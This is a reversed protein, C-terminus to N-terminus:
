PKYIATGYTWGAGIAVMLLTRDISYMEAMAVPISASAINGYKHMITIVNDVPINIMSALKHLVRIGAQHPIMFNIDHWFLGVEEMAERVLDPLVSTARDYVKRGVMTYTKGPEIYFADDSQGDAYVNVSMQGTGKSLVVAGAGDGFYVNDRHDWDTITSYAETAIILVYKDPDCIIQKCALDLAYIFGSCVANIDFAPAKIGLAHIIQNSVSPAFHSPSSCSVIVMGIKDKDINHMASKAALTGMSIVNEGNIIRRSKIGLHATIWADAKKDVGPLDKNTVITAPLYSGVSRIRIKEYIM